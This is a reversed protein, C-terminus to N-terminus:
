WTYRGIPSNLFTRKKEEARTVIGMGEEMYPGAVMVSRLFFSKPYVRLLSNFETEPLLTRGERKAM